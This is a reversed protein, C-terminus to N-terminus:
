LVLHNIRISSIVVYIQLFPSIPTCSLINPPVIIDKISSADAEYTDWIQSVCRTTVKFISSNINLILKGKILASNSPLAAGSEGQPVLDASVLIEGSKVGQLPIWQGDSGALDVVDIEVKGLSKDKGLKDSDFVEILITDADGDPVKFSTNFDWQPELTNKIVNTKEKQKGFKLVAYPDSKGMVDAKILNKAKILAVQLEGEFGSFPGKSSKSEAGVVGGLPKGGHGAIESGLPKGGHGAVM